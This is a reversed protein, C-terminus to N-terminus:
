KEKEHFPILEYNILKCLFLNIDQTKNLEEEYKKYNIGEPNVCIVNYISNKDKSNNYSLIIYYENKDCLFDFRIKLNLEKTRSISIGTIENYIKMIKENINNNENLFIFDNYKIYEKLLNEFINNPSLTLKNNEEYVNKNIDMLSTANNTLSDLKRIVKGKLKNNNQISNLLLSEDELSM